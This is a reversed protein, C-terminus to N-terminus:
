CTKWGLITEAGIVDVDKSLSHVFHKARNQQGFFQGSIFVDNYFCRM